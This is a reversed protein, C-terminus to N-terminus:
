FPCAELFSRAHDYRESNNVGYVQISSGAVWERVYWMHFCMDHSRNVLRISSARREDDTMSTPLYWIRHGAGLILWYLPYYPEYDDL